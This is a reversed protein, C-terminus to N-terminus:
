FHILKINDMFITQKALGTSDWGARIAPRFFEMTPNDDLTTNVDIYIRNWHDVPRVALLSTYSAVGDKLLYVGFELLTNSLYDFEFLVRTGITPLEFDTSSYAEFYRNKKDTYIAGSFRGERLTEKQSRFVTDSSSPYEFSLGADEFDEIWAFKCDKKYTIEPIITIVQGPALDIKGSGLYPEFFPYVERSGAIGNLEFAPYIIVSQLGTTLCPIMTPIEFFGLTAGGVNVKVCSLRHSASGQDFNTVKVLFTDVKIYSPIDEPPNIINCSHFCCALTVVPLIM